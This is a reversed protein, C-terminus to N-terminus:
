QTEHNTDKHNNHDSEAGSGAWSAPPLVLIFGTMITKITRKM